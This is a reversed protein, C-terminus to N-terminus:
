RQQQRQQQQLQQKQPPPPPPQQQQKQRRSQTSPAPRGQGRPHSIGHKRVCGVQAEATGWASVEQM